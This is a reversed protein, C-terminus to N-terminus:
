RRTFPQGALLAPRTNRTELASRDGSSRDRMSAKACASGGSSRLRVGAYRRPGWVILSAAHIRVLRIRSPRRGGPLLQKLIDIDHQARWHRGDDERVVV